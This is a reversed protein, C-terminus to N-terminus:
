RDPPVAARLRDHLVSAEREDLDAATRAALWAAGAAGATAVLVPASWRRAVGRRVAAQIPGTSTLVSGGLVIPTDATDDRVQALTAVLRGVAGRVIARAPRDGATAAQSVLPALRPIAALPQRYVEAVLARALAAPQDPRPGAGLVRDVVLRALLGPPQGAYLARTVERAAARGLWFASGEDGLLWGLGDATRTLTRDDIRGAVAGTGAVLVTGSPATTASVFAVLVDAVLNMPCRLGAERWGREFEAAVRPDALRSGGAVGMVGARVDRPDVESLAIRIAEVVSAAAAEPPRATPNGGGARGQGALRGALTVVVARSATGGVDLGLVLPEQTTM